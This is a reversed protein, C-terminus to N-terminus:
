PKDLQSLAAITLAQMGMELSPKRDPAYYPSHQVPVKEIGGYKKIIEPGTIGLYYYVLPVGTDNGMHGYLSFDESATAAPEEVVKDNGFYAKLAKVIQETPEPDNYLAATSQNNTIEPEHPANSAVAEAKVIREIAALVQKRVEPQFTRVTMELVAEDPIVNYQTGGQIAGVTIIAIEGPTVERAVISQLRMVTAAAMVVPDISKQPMSGHAGQGFIRVKLNDASSLVYGPHYGLTGVPLPFTHQAIAIDPKPFRTFLGDKLMAAAGQLTEEAPQAVILVTGSWVERAQMLLSATGMLCSTHVDHGCAHAVPVERGGQDVMKVKSAYPLGTKEELPLADMDGRLMITPGKGNRLIGVVGYGGVGTTVEYGARKLWDAVKAATEKEQMSLEPHTHLDTYFAEIDPYITHLNKLVVAERSQPDTTMTRNGKKM